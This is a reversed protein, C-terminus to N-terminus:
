EEYRKTTCGCEPCAGEYPGKHACKWCSYPVLGADRCARLHGSQACQIIRQQDAESLSITYGGFRDTRNTDYSIYEYGDSFLVSIRIKRDNNPGVINKSIDVIKADRKLKSKKHTITKNNSYFIKSWYPLIIALVVLIAVVLYEM